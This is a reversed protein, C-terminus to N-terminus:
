FVRGLDEKDEPKLELVAEESLGEGLSIKLRDDQKMKKYYFCKRAGTIKSVEQRVGWQM